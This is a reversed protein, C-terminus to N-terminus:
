SRRAGAPDGRGVPRPAHAARRGPVRRSAHQRPQRDTGLLGADRGTRAPYPQLPSALKLLFWPLRKVKLDPMGAARRIAAVMGTGDADDYGGFHFRQFPELEAERDALRAFTEAADPLYAWAHGAGTRGPYTVARLPQGPKVMGQSFWSNGPRPGYFDGFRVILTRVGEDAARALKEELAVRIAGKRTTPHQLGDERLIPGADPGYNYITGPLLIRAAVARAAAVTNELM